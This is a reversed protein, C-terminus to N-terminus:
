DVVELRVEFSFRTQTSHNTGAGHVMLPSFLMFDARVIDPRHPKIEFDSHVIDPVSYAIGNKITKQSGAEFAPTVSDDPWLHSRPTITMASDCWSGAMPVYINILPRFYGFWHDRHMPNNDEFHPRVVRYEINNRYFELKVGFYNEASQRLSEFYPDKLWDKPLNRKQEAIFGHHDIKNREVFEHYTHLEFDDTNCSSFSKLRGALEDQFKQSLIEYSAPNVHRFIRYGYIAFPDTAPIRQHIATPESMNTDQSIM